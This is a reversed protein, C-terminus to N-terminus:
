DVELWIIYDNSSQLIGEYISNSLSREDVRSLIDLNKYVKSLENILEVTNDESSDDVVIVEFELEFSSKIIADYIQPILIELNKSENLTPLIISFSNNENNM